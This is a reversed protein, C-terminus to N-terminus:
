SAVAPIADVDLAPNGYLERLQQRARYLRTLVANATLGLEAAIEVTTFGGLVQMVLPVRYEGPLRLLTKRLEEIEPDEDFWVLGADERSMCADICVTLLQKREYLRAHERRIITFLWARVATPDRLGSRSRWARLMTEQVIDEAIALDRTLWLAFRTLDARCSELLHGWESQAMVGGPCPFNARVMPALL